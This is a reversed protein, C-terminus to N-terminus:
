NQRQQSLMERLQRVEDQLKILESEIRQHQEAMRRDHELGMAHPPIGAFEDDSDFETGGQRHFVFNERSGLVAPVQMEQDGRRVLFEVQEQPQFEDIMSILDPTSAVQQGNLQLIVDGRRLGARAAPGSPYVNTITAGQQDQENDQLYVGLWPGSDQADMPPLQVTYRQGGRDIIIPVPRGYLGGMYARFQRPNRLERGDVSVIRDGNRLGARAAGSEAEVEGVVIGDAAQQDIQFGLRSGRQRDDQAQGERDQRSRRDDRRVDAGDAPDRQTTGRRDRASRAPQRPDSDADAPQRNTRRPEAQSDAARDRPKGTARDRTQPQDAAQNRQAQNGTQSRNANPEDSQAQKEQAKSSEQDQDQSDTASAANKQEAQDSSANQNAPAQAMAVATGL